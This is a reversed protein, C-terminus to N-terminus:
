FHEFFSVPLYATKPIMLGAKAGVDLQSNWDKKFARRTRAKPTVPIAQGSGLRFSM